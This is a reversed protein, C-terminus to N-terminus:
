VEQGFDNIYETITDNGIGIKGHHVTVGFDQLAQIVDDLMGFADTNGNQTVILEVTYGVM